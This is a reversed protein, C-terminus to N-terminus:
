RGRRRIETREFLSGKPWTLKAQVALEQLEDPDVGRGHAWERWQPIFYSWWLWAAIFALVAVIAGATASKGFLFLALLLGGFMILQVPGNVLLQGRAVATKPPLPNPDNPRDFQM